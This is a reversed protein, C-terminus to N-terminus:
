TFPMPILGAEITKGLGVDDAVLWATPWTALVQQCVWLQHPLLQVRSCSFVGWSDNVSRIALAVARLVTPLIPQVEGSRLRETASLLPILSGVPCGEM